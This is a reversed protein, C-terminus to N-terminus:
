INSSYYSKAKILDGCNIYKGNITGTEHVYWGSDYVFEIRQNDVRFTKDGFGSVPNYPSNVWEEWTMGEEALYSTNYGHSDIQFVILGSDIDDWVPRVSNGFVRYNNYQPSMLSSSFLLNPVGSRSYSSSLWVYGYSGVGDLSGNSDNRRGSAPFFVGTTDYEYRKFYCGNNFSGVVNSNSFYTFTNGNPMKFGVPCPDYVTKVVTNDSNGDKTCNADWLNTYSLEGFWNNKSNGSRGYFTHPNKIAEGYTTACTSSKTFTEVGYNTADTKSNYSMPPLMPTPRGWQYFWNYMKGSTSADKKTALNVPLINYDVGTSNTITVPTLDDPWVWIHWSWMVTGSGDLVSIVGNAGTDPISNVKFRIYRCGRGSVISINSFVNDTDAMSLEAGAATCNVHREIYPSTIVADLHNVFNHSYGGAVKTFAALNVVDNKIANGYVLPIKYYGAEKVVYCNATTQTIPSGYITYMSLDIDPKEVYEVSVTRVNYATATYSLSNPAIYSNIESFSVTYTTGAKVKIELNNGTYSNGEVTVTPNEVGTINLYLTEYKENDSKANTQGKM